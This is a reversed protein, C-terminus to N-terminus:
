LQGVELSESDHDVSLVSTELYLFKDALHNVCALFLNGWLLAALFALSRGFSDKGKNIYINYNRM